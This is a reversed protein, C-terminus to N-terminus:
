AWTRSITQEYTPADNEANRNAIYEIFIKSTRRLM